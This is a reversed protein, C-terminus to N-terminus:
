PISLSLRERDFSAAVWHFFRADALRREAIQQDGGGALGAATASSLAAM